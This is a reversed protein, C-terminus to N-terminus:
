AAPEMVSKTSPFSSTRATRIHSLSSAPSSSGPVPDLAPLNETTDRYRIRTVAIDLGRAHIPEAPTRTEHIRAPAAELPFQAIVCDGDYIVVVHPTLNRIYNM